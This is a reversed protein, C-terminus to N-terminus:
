GHEGPCGAKFTTVNDFAEITEHACRRFAMDGPVQEDMAHVEMGAFRRLSEATQDAALALVLLTLNLLIQSVRRHNGSNLDLGRTIGYAFTFQLKIM